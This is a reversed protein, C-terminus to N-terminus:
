ALIAIRGISLFYIAQRIPLGDDAFLLSYRALQERYNGTIAQLDTDVIAPDLQVSNYDIIWRVGDEIFTRDVVHTSVLLKDARSIALEVDDKDRKELVWRGEESALATDLMGAVRQAGSAAQDVPLGQSVLWHAMVPTLAVLRSAPWHAIGDKAMLEMYRHALSGILADATRGA